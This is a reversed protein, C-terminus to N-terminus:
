AISRISQTGTRDPFLMEFRHCPRRSERQPLFSGIIEESRGGAYIDASNLFNGGSDIYANTIEHSEKEDCGWDPTGFTMTGLAIRSVLSGSSGLFRYKM